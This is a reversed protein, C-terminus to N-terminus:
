VQSFTQYFITQITWCFEEGGFLRYDSYKQPCRSATTVRVYWSFFSLIYM